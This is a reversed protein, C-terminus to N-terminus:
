TIINIMCENSMVTRPTLLTFTMMVTITVRMLMESLPLGPSGGIVGSPCIACTSPCNYPVNVYKSCGASDFGGKGCYSPQNNEVKSCDLDCQDGVYYPLNKLCACTCSTLNRTGGNLCDQDCECLNNKRFKAGCVSAGTKYPTSFDGVNGAPGYNCVYFKRVNSCDAYACGIRSTKAWVMQTYHGTASFDNKSKMGFTFDDKENYWGNVAAEWDKYGRALNQGVSFRGPITRKSGKDHDYLCNEAWGEAIKAIEDDWSMKLMNAAKPSVKSRYDNHLNVILQKDAESLGSQQVNSSKPLCASHSEIRKLKAKCTRGSGESNRRERHLYRQGFVDPSAVTGLVTCLLVIGAIM